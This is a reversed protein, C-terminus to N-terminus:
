DCFSWIFSDSWMDVCHCHYRPQRHEGKSKATEYDSKCVLKRDEMLYFEDGTNLQRSCITCAFCQLHYVYDQTKRVVQTPPIGLDCGACKTGYRRFYPCYGHIKQVRKWYYCWFSVKRDFQFAISQGPIFITIWFRHESACKSFYNSFVCCRSVFISNAKYITCSPFSIRLLSEFNMNCEQSIMRWSAGIRLRIRIAMKIRVWDIWIVDFHNLVWVVDKITSLKPKTLFDCSFNSYFEMEKFFDSYM